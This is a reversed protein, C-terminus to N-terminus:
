KPPDCSGFISFYEPHAETAIMAVITKVITPKSMTRRRARRRRSDADGGLRLGSGLRLDLGRGLGRGLASASEGLERALEIDAVV